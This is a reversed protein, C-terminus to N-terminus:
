AAFRDIALSRDVKRRPRVLWYFAVIHTIMLLPVYVIPIAYTAGLEGAM